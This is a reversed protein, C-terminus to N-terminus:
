GVSIRINFTVLWPLCKQRILQPLSFYFSNFQPLNWNMHASQVTFEASGEYVLLIFYLFITLNLNKCILGLNVLGLNYAVNNWCASLLVRTSVCYSRRISDPSTHSSQYFLRNTRRALLVWDTESYSSLIIYFLRQIWNWISVRSYWTCRVAEWPLFRDTYWLIGYTTWLTELAIKLILSTCKM